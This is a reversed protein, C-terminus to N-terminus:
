VHLRITKSLFVGIAEWVPCLKDHPYLGTVVWDQDIENVEPWDNRKTKFDASRLIGRTSPGKHSDSFVYPDTGWPM